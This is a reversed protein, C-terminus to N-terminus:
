KAAAFIHGNVKDHKRQKGLRTTENLLPLERPIANECVTGTGPSQGVPFAVMVPVAAVSGMRAFATHWNSTRM